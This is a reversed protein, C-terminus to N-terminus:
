DRLANQIGRLETLVAGPRTGACAPDDQRLRLSRRDGAFLATRFGAQQAPLIDNRMDNGTYLVEEPKIGRNQLTEALHRYLSVSPKAERMRYSWVRCDPDFGLDDLTKGLLAEFLLPTFFQANSVIGLLLGRKGLEALVTEMEPMPWVPNALCEYTVALDEAKEMNASPFGSEKEPLWDLLTRWIQRIEVEPHEAGEKRRREHDQRILNHFKECLRLDPGPAPLGCEAFAQRMLEERDEQAALGIDGSGSILLTGYVDFAAGRLNPCPDM